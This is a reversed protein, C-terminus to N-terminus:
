EGRGVSSTEYRRVRDHVVGASGPIIGPPAVAAAASRGYSGVAVVNSSSLLLAPASSGLPEPQHSRRRRQPGSASDAENMETPSVYSDQQQQQRQQQQNNLLLTLNSAAPRQTAPRESASIDNGMVIARALSSNPAILSRGGLEVLPSGATNKPRPPVGKNYPFTSSEAKDNM